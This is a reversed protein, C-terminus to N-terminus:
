DRVNRAEEIEKIREQDRKDWLYHDSEQIMRRVIESASAGKYHGIRKLAEWMEDEMSVIRRRM